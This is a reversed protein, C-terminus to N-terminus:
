GRIFVPAGLPVRAFLSVLDRDTARLCGASTAGGVPEPTGHIAIRDGGIWDPPLNPQHGTLALVCCGYYPGFSGGALGDTISYRGPPTPSTPSGVTVRFRDLLKRGYRLELMQKSVDAIISFRTELVELKGEENEIWALKGNPLERAPVGFWDGRVKAIWFTRVSGFETRDGVTELLKGGPGDRLAVRAGSRVRAIAFRPGPVQGSSRSDSEIDPLQIVSRLASLPGDGEAAPVEESGSPGTPADGREVFGVILALGGLAAIAVRINV